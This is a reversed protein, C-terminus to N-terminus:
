QAHIFFIRLRSLRSTRDATGSIPINGQGPATIRPESFSDHNQRLRFEDLRINDAGLLLVTMTNWLRLKICRRNYNMRHSPLPVLPRNDRKNRCLTILTVIRDSSILIPCGPDARVVVLALSAKRQRYQPQLAVGISYEESIPFSLRVCRRSEPFLRWARQPQFFECGNLRVM